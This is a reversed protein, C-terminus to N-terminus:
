EAKPQPRKPRGGAGGGGDGGGPAAGGGGGGGFGRGFQRLQEVDFEKGKLSALKDKQDKTLVETIKADREKNLEQMKERNGGGGGGGGGQFLEGIKGQYEDSVSKIKDQQDKTITLSKIIEPDTYVRSGMNQWNLQQLRTFQDATLVDKLKPLFKENNAKGIEQMKEGFKTREEESMNRFDQGTGASQMAERFAANYEDTVSKVKDVSETSLGLEKQAASNAVVMFVNSRGFMGGGFGGRGRGGQQADATAAVALCSALCIMWANLKM